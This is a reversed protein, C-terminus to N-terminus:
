RCRVSAPPAADSKGTAGPLSPGHLLGGDVGEDGEEIQLRDLDVDEPPDVGILIPLADETTLHGALCEHRRGPGHIVVSRDM